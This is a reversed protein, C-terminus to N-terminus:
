QDEIECVYKVAVGAAAAPPSISVSSGVVGGGVSSGVVAGGVSSGVVSTGVVSSGVVVGGVSSGLASAGNGVVSTAMTAATATAATMPMPAYQANLLLYCRFYVVLLKGERKKHPTFYQFLSPSFPRGMSLIFIVLPLHLQQNKM